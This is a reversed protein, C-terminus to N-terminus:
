SPWVSWGAKGLEFAVRWVLALPYALIAASVSFGIVAPWSFRPRSVRGPVAELEHEEAAVHLRRGGNGSV